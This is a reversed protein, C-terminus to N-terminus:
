KKRTFTYVAWAAVALTLATTLSFGFGGFLGGSQEAKIAEVLVSAPIKGATVQDIMKSLNAQKQIYSVAWLGAAVGGVILVGAVVAPALGLGSPRYLDSRRIRGIFDDVKGGWELGDPTKIFNPRIAEWLRPFEVFWAMIKNQQDTTFLGAEVGVKFKAFDIVAQDFIAPFDPVLSQVKKQDWYNLATTTALVALTPGLAGLQRDSVYLM